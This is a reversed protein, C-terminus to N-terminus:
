VTTPCCTMSCSNQQITYKQEDQTSEKKEAVTLEQQLQKREKEVRERAKKLDHASILEEEYAEIQRQMKVDLKHLRALIVEKESQTKRTRHVNLKPLDHSSAIEKIRDLIIRELEDRDIWHFFM